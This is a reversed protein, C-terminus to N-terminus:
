ATPGIMEVSPAEAWAISDQRYERALYSLTEKLREAAEPHLEARWCANQWRSTSDSTWQGHVKGDARDSARHIAAATEAFYRHWELQSLKDDSNGISIYITKM